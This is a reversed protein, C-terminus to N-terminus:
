LFPFVIFCKNFVYSFNRYIVTMLDYIDVSCEDMVESMYRSDGVMAVMVRKLSNEPTEHRFDPYKEALKLLIFADDMRRLAKESTYYFGNSDNGNFDLDAELQRQTAPDSATM